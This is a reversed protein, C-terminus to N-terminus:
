QSQKEELEKQLMAINRKLKEISEVAAATKTESAELVVVKKEVESLKEVTNKAAEIVSTVYMTLGGGLLFWVLSVCAIITNARTSFEKIKDSNLELKHNMGAVKRGLGDMDVNTEHIVYSVKTYFQHRDLSEDTAPPTVLERTM